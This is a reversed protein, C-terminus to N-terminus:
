PDPQEQRFDAPATGFWHLRELLDLERSRMISTDEREAHDHGLVHLIGHVVLLALEDDITGAHQPANAAAVGPCVVVDGLLVPVDAVGDDTGADLPFSLVDTTTDIGIHESNLSRIEDRDVFTLTLEGACGEAALVATALHAWRDVDIPVESQEDSCVVHVGSPADVGTPSAPDGV